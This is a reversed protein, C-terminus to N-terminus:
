FSGPLDVMRDHTLATIAAEFAGVTELMSAISVPFRARNEVADAFRDLLDGIALTPDFTKTGEPEGAINLHLTRWDRMEAWGASGFVAMRVYDPVGRVCGLLGTAGSRFRILLSVADIPKASGEPAHIQGALRAVPGALDILGDLAHLGPGTMGAGPAEAPHKRWGGSLGRSMVDNSYQAEVHLLRGLRGGAVCAKLARMAPLFRRDTGIGLVVGADRCAAVARQADALTLALPKESFVPKGAAACALIQPVHLSHPTALVVADVEPHALAEDLTALLVLGNAAAIEADNAPDGGVGYRFSLRHSPGRVADVMRQGWWGLGVIAATVM